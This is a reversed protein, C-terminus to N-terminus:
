LAPIRIVTGSPIAAPNPIRNLALIDSARALANRGYRRQALTVLDTLEPVVFRITPPRAATLAADLVLCSALAVEVSEVADACAAPAPTSAFLVDELGLGEAIAAALLSETEPSSGAATDSGTFLDNAATVYSEVAAALADFRASIATVQGALVSTSSVTSMITSQLLAVSSEVEGVQASAREIAQRAARSINATALGLQAMHGGTATDAAIMAATVQQAATATDPIGDSAGGADLVTETFTVRVSIQDLAQSFEVDAVPGDCFAMWQGVIPHVLLARPRADVEAEFRAFQQACDDGVWILRVDLRRPAAEQDEVLAGRRKPFEHTVARRKSQGSFGLLHGILTMTGFAFAQPAAAPPAEAM